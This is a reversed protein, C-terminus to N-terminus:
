LPLVSLPLNMFLSSVFILSWPRCTCPYSFISYGLSSSLKMSPDGSPFAMELLPVCCGMTALCPLLLPFEQERSRQGGHRMNSPISGTSSTCLPLGGHCLNSPICLTQLSLPIGENPSGVELQWGHDRPNPCHCSPFFLWAHINEGTHYCWSSKPGPLHTFSVGEGLTGQSLEQSIKSRGCSEQLTGDEQQTSV